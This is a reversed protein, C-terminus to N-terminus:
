ECPADYVEMIKREGSVIKEGFRSSRLSKLEAKLEEMEMLEEKKDTLFSLSAAIGAIRGEIMASSAEEISAADGVVYLDKISTEYDENHLIVEGGLEPISATRCGAQKLLQISPTLGVAICITDVELLKEEGTEMNQIVAGEVQETGIAEKVTHRLLIPVGQRRLKAMHVYYGGVHDMVEVLAKVEVGAQLLQYSVILGVNGSGVMLVSRGPIIGYVNMLTQVGGAGYIGPLDNNGFLLFNEEAGASIIEKETKFLIIGDPTEVGTGEPYFGFVSSRNYVTLNESRCSDMLKEPIDIGRTGAYEKESGFFRHTQKILQGGVNPNEDVVVTKLGRETTEVAASLGAPGSGVILVDCRDKRVNIGRFVPAARGRGEQIKIKLGEKVPMICTRENPMDGVRMLCSSCKGIGCFFGRPRNLKPSRSLTKVGNAHLAAAITENEYGWLEKDELYFRIKKGREFSLVPHENLRLDM